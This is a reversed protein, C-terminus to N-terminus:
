NHVHKADVQCHIHRGYSVMSPRIAWPPRRGLWPMNSPTLSTVSDCSTIIVNWLTPSHCPSMHAGRSGAALQSWWCLLLLLRVSARVSQSQSQGMELTIISCGTRVAVCLMSVLSVVWCLVSLCTICSLMHSQSLSVVWCLVSLCTLCNLM